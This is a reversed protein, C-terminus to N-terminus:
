QLSQSALWGIGFGSFSILTLVILSQTRNFGARQLDLRALTESALLVLIYGFLNIWVFAIAVFMAAIVVSTFYGADSRLWANILNKFGDSFATLLLAQGLAFLGAMLWVIWTVTAHYLFWSFTIYATLLLLLSLWPFEKM